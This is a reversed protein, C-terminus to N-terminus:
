RNGSSAKGSRGRSRWPPWERDESKAHNEDCTDGGLSSTLPHILSHARSLSSTDSASPIGM